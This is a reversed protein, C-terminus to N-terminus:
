FDYPALALRREPIRSWPQVEIVRFVQPAGARTRIQALADLLERRRRPGGTWFGMQHAYESCFGALELSLNVGPAPLVLREVGSRLLTMMRDTDRTPERFVFRRVLSEGSEVNLRWELRRIARGQVDAHALVRHLLVRTAAVLPGTEVAPAPFDVEDRVSLEEPQPIVRADDEGQSLLWGRAGSAGFQGLMADLPMNSVQGLRKLGFRRLREHVPPPLPLVEVPLNVVFDRPSRVVRHVAPRGEFAGEVAAAHAAFVATSAGLSVPLRVLDHATMVLDACYTDEDMRALAALGRVDFHAHGPEIAEVAPSVDRLFNLIRVSEEVAEAERYPLFIAERCLALARRLTMGPTVGAAAAAKSCARVSAHEEPMGGIVVPRSELQPRERCALAVLFDHIYLCAVALETGRSSCREM